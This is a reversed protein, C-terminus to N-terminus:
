DSRSDSSWSSYIGAYNYSFNRLDIRFYHDLFNDETLQQPADEAALDTVAPQRLVMATCVMREATLVSHVVMISGITTMRRKIVAMIKVTMMVVLRKGRRGMLDWLRNCISRIAVCQVYNVRSTDSEM